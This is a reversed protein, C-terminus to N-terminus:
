ISTPNFIHNGRLGACLVDRGRAGRRGPRAGRGQRRVQATCWPSRAPFAEEVGFPYELLCHYHNGPKTAFVLIAASPADVGAADLFPAADVDGDCGPVHPFGEGRRGAYLTADDYVAPNPGLASAPGPM